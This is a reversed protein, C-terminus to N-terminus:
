RFPAGGNEPLVALVGRLRGGRQLERRVIKLFETEDVPDNGFGRPSGM